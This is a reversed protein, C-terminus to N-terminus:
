GAGIVEALDRASNAKIRIPVRLAHTFILLLAFSVAMGVAFTRLPPPEHM